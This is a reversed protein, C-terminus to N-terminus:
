HMGKWELFEQYVIGIRALVSGVTNYIVEDM